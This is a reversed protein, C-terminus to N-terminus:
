GEHTLIELDQVFNITEYFTSEFRETIEVIDGKIVLYKDDSECSAGINFRRRKRTELDEVILCICEEERTKIVEKFTSYNMDSYTVTENFERVDLVKFSGKEIKTGM